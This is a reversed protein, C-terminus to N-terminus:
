GHAREKKIFQKLGLLIEHGLLSEEVSGNNREAQFLLDSIAITKREKAKKLIRTKFQDTM